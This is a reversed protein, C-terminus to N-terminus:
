GHAHSATKALFFYRFAHPSRNNKKHFVVVVVVFLYAWCMSKGTKLRELFIDSSSNMIVTADMKPESIFLMFAFALLNYTNHVLSDGHRGQESTSAKVELTVGNPSLINLFYDFNLSTM